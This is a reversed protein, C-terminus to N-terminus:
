GADGLQQRLRHLTRSKAKRVAAGTMGLNDAAEAATQGLVVTHWFAQWTQPEIRPKIQAIARRLLLTTESPDAPPAQEAADPWLDAIEALRANATSGGIPRPEARALSKLIVNRSIRWLWGRFTAGPITPDFRKISRHVALFVEQAVDERAARTLGAKASWSEVLPGYLEVLESWADSSDQRLRIALSLGSSSERNEVLPPM